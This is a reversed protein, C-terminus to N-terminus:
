NGSGDDTEWLKKSAIEYAEINFEDRLVQEQDLNHRIREPSMPPLGIEVATGRGPVWHCPITGVIQVNPMAAFAGYVANLANVCGIYTPDWVWNVGIGPVNYAVSQIAGAYGAAGFNNGNAIPAASASMVPLAAVLAASLTLKALSNLFLRKM